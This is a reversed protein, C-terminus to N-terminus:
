RTILRLTQSFLLPTPDVIRYATSEFNILDSELDIQATSRTITSGSSRNERDIGFEAYM